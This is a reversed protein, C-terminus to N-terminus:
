NRALYALLGDGLVDIAENHAAHLRYLMIHICPETILTASSSHSNCLIPM